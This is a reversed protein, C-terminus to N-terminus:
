ASRLLTTKVERVKLAQKACPLAARWVMILRSADPELILTDLSAMRVQEGGDLRFSAQVALTPLVFQIASGDPKVGRVDVSEGGRLGGPVVLDPPALQFFRADFDTPLYPARDRQWSDDYTGAFSKRPEWHAAVPAFGAPAPVDKWSSILAAPDEINPLPMDALPKAGASKRFGLGVPNRPETTEGKDTRDAGGFAREWVLPMREFPTVWRVSVATPGVDWCRDGFVRVVKAAPGVRLSVDMQWTPAGDPSWASGILLVDTGPKELCVDSPTRISTKAPDGHHQDALVVAVQEDALALQAGLAFTGKIVAFLTDIGNANPLLLLQAAFPTENRLQLM